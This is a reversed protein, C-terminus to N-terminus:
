ASKETRTLVHVVGVVIGVLVVTWLFWPSVLHGSFFSVLGWVVIEVVSLGVWVGVAVRRVSRSM